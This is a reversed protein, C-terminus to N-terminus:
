SDTIMLIVSRCYSYLCVPCRAFMGRVNKCRFGGRTPARHVTGRFPRFRDSPRYRRVHQRQLFSVPARRHCQRLFEIL